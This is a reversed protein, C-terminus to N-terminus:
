RCTVDLAQYIQSCQNSDAQNIMQYTLKLKARLLESKSAERSLRDQFQETFILSYVEAFDESASTLAYRSVYGDVPFYESNVSMIKGYLNDTTLASWGSERDFLYGYRSYALFHGIEHHITQEGIVARSQGGTTALSNLYIDGALPDSFGLVPQGSNNQIDDVIFIRHLGVARLYEERYEGLENEVLNFMGALEYSDNANTWTYKQNAFSSTVSSVDVSNIDRNKSTIASNSSSSASSPADIRGQFVSVETINSAVFTNMLAGLAWFIGFGILGIFIGRFRNM